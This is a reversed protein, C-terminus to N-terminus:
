LTVRKALKESIQGSRELHDVHDVFSCRIDCFYDNQRKTVRYHEKYEPFNLWFNERVEKITKM